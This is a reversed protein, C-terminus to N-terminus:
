VPRIWNNNENTEFYMGSVGTAWFMGLCWLERSQDRKQGITMDLLGLLVEALSRSIRSRWLCSAAFSLGGFGGAEDM